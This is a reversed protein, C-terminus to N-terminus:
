QARLMLCSELCLFSNKDQFFESIVQLISIPDNAEQRYLDWLQYFRERQQMWQAPIPSLSLSYNEMVSLPPSERIILFYERRLYLWVM